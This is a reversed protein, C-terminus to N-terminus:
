SYVSSTPCRFVTRRKYHMSTRQVHCIFKLTINTLIDEFTLLRGLLRANNKLAPHLGERQDESRCLFLATQAQVACCNGRPNAQVGQLACLVNLLHWINHTPM